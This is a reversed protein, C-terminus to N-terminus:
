NLGAEQYSPRPGQQIRLEMERAAAAIDQNKKVARLHGVGIRYLIEMVDWVNGNATATQGIAALLERAEVLLEARRRSSQFYKKTWAIM